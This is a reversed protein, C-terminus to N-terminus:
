EAGWPQANLKDLLLDSLVEVAWWFAGDIQVAVIGYGDEKDGDVLCHWVHGAFDIRVAPFHHGAPVTWGTEVHTGRHLVLPQHAALAAREARFIAGM